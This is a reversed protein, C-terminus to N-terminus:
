PTAAAAAKAKKRELSRINLRTVDTYTNDELNQRFVDLAEDERGMRRLQIGLQERYFVHRRQYSAARRYQELAREPERMANYARAMGYVAAMEAPNRDIASQFYGAAESAFQNKGEREAARDPNRYWMAQTARLNGMGLYPQWNAADWAIAKLYDVEAPEQEMRTREIEGKLNWAYSMGGSLSFWIGTACILIGVGSLLWAGWRQHGRPLIQGKEQVWWVSWAVGGLWVMAHPNPFIHFNFDFLAHILSAAFGGLAGALLWAGSDSKGTLIARTMGWACALLAALALIGGVAGQELLLQIYENHAFDYRHHQTVHRQYPPYAWVYSGGGYGMVPRNKYMDPADRWMKMRVGGAGEGKEIIEGIRTQVAPLTEWAVWGMAAVGIPFAILAILLGRRSKRWALLTGTVAIGAIVGIWGSRSQSWYLTPATIVIFYGGLLRLPLGADSLLILVLAMPTLLALLNAFHNPCLYTGSARMAYQAPRTTWLVSDTGNVHQIWAYLSDLAAAMLLAGLLWKWRHARGGMQSWSWAAALLCVWRLADWRAAYPVLAFPVHSVIYFVLIAYVWFGPIVGVRPTNRFLLPRALVLLSGTFSLLLGPAIGWTRTSGMLWVGATAPWMLLFLALADVLREPWPIRGGRMRWEPQRQM